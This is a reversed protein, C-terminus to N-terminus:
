IDPARCSRTASQRAFRSSLVVTVAFTVIALVTVIGSAKRFEIWEFLDSAIRILVSLHLLALPIYAANSYPIRIGAVAPFIIFAHGFVMSLAFGITIAHVVADYSFTAMSSPLFLLIIGSIALWAEAALISAASFRTQGGFYITRRAIDHRMLWAAYGIFGVGTFPAFNSGLEARTSGVLLSLTVIMFLIQSSRSPSGIRSLELREAAVTLVVFNLWWGAANSFPYGTLWILTGVGWCAAGIALVVTFLATQRFVIRISASLLLAGALTFAVAGAAPMSAALALAGLSSIAPAAYAWWRGLAVARELSILTGLFGSIMLAGHFEAITPMGGPLAIGLRSLGTWLGLLMGFAAVALPLFRLRRWRTQLLKASDDTPPRSNVADPM